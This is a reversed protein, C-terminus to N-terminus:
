LVERAGGPSLSFLSWPSSLCPPPHASFTLRVRPVILCCGCAHACASNCTIDVKFMTAKIQGGQADLLDVSFLSGEGKANAWSRKDSKATVRAKITWRSHYPHLSAIPHFQTMSAGAGGGAAGGYGGAGAGAAGGKSMFTPQTRKQEAKVGGFAQPVGAAAVQLRACRCLLLCLLSRSSSSM